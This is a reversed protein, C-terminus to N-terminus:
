LSPRIVKLERLDFSYRSVLTIRLIQNSVTETRSGIATQGDTSIRCVLRPESEPTFYNWLRFTSGKKDILEYDVSQRDYYIRPRTIIVIRIDGCKWTAASGETAHEARLGGPSWECSFKKDNITAEYITPRSQHWYKGPPADCFGSLMPAAATLFALHFYQTPLKLARCNWAAIDFRKAMLVIILQTACHNATKIGESKPINQYPNIAKSGQITPVLITIPM